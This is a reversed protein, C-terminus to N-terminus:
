VSDSLQWNIPDLGQQQLYANAQSFHKCGFFGKYASLPSPHSSKLILHRDSDVIAGKKQAYNGWLMFVLDQREMNIIEIVRDTFIEWGKGRHSAAKAQEVTLVSNLLLVGQEAWDYLCGHSVPLVNLDRELEKYINLLSPPSTVGPQVSFCLGHAQGSGHYPDQGLIVVKVKDLPTSNFASFYDSPDPYIVKGSSHQRQLFSRLQIMYDKKFEQELVKRWKPELKVLIKDVSSM